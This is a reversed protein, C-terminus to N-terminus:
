IKILDKQERTQEEELKAIMKKIAIVAIASRERAVKRIDEILLHIPIVEDTEGDIIFFDSFGDFYSKIKGDVDDYEFEKGKNNPDDYKVYPNAIKIYPGLQPTSEIVTGNMYEFKKSDFYIKRTEHIGTEDYITTVGIRCMGYIQDCFVNSMDFM